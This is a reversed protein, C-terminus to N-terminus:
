KLIDSRLSEISSFSNDLKYQYPNYSSDSDCVSSNSNNDNYLPIKPSKIKRLNHHQSRQNEPSSVSATFLCLGILSQYIQSM